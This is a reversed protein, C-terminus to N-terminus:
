AVPYRGLSLDRCFRPIDDLEADVLEAALARMAAPDADPHPVFEVSAVVPHDVPQGIRSCMWVWAELVGPVERCIREAVRHTLVSYIKGVHSVPNKGAAAEASAPRNLSILGNVRNGRGVQGSDADEASTGLLSLYVGALGRGPEDLTNVFIRVEGLGGRVAEVFDFIARHIHHKREFYVAENQIRSELLPMAVALDLRGGTRVGMVKVDEGTFPFESKFPKSNLYRETALVVRETDTPPYYGVAASTDNARLVAAEDDFIGSLEPSGPALANEIILHEAPDVHPLHAGIWNRAAATAIDTVPISRDAAAYTARDGIILRMLRTQRGGGFDHEVQGAILLGKDINHHLVRGCHDLYEQCLAVSVAEAIADCISDPHGTGKREVVEVHQDAPRPSQLTEVIINRAM